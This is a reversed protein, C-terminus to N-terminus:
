TLITVEIRTGDQGSKIDFRDSIRKTGLIGLGLGTKSRYQGGLIESLNPIGRGTDVSVITISKPANSNPTLEIHGGPTYSVINRALESVAISVKHTQLPKAGLETCMTRAVMRAETIDPEARIQITQARMGGGSKPGGGLTEIEGRLAVRQAPELFLALARDLKPLLTPVDAKTLLAPSKRCDTVVQRLIAHANVASIYRRVVDSLQDYFAVM